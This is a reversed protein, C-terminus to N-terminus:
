DDGNRGKEDLWDMGKHYVDDYLPDIPKHRKDQKRRDAFVRRLEAHLCHVRTFRRGGRSLPGDRFVAAWIGAASYRTRIALARIVVDMRPVDRKEQAIRLMRWLRDPSHASLMRPTIESM